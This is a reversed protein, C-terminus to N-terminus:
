TKAGVIHKGIGKGPSLRQQTAVKLTEREHKAEATLWQLFKKRRLVCQARYNAKCTSINM